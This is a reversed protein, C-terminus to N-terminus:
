ALNYNRKFPAPDIRLRDIESSGFLILIWCSYSYSRVHIPTPDTMFLLLIWCPGFRARAEVEMNVMNFSLIAM